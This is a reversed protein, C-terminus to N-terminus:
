VPDEVSVQVDFMERDAVKFRIHGLIVWFEERYGTQLRSQDMTGVFDTSNCELLAFTHLCCEKMIKREM